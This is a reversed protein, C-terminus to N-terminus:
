SAIQEPGLVLHHGLNLQLVAFAELPESRGPLESRKAAFRTELCSGSDGGIRPPLAVQMLISVNMGMRTGETDHAAISLASCSVM